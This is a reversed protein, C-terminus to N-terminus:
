KKPQHKSVRMPICKGTLSNCGEGMNKMEDEVERQAMGVDKSRGNGM